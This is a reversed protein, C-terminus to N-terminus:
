DEEAPAAVSLADEHERAVACDFGLYTHGVSQEAAEDGVPSSLELIACENLKLLPQLFCLNVQAFQTCCSQHFFLHCFFTLAAHSTAHTLM